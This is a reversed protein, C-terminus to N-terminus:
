VVVEMRELVELLEAMEADTAGFRHAEEVIDGREKYVVGGGAQSRVERLGHALLWAAIESWVLWGPTHRQQPRAFRGAGPGSPDLVRARLSVWWGNPQIGWEVTVNGGYRENLRAQLGDMIEPIMDRHRSLFRATM